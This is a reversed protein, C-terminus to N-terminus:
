EKRKLDRVVCIVGAAGVVGWVLYAVIRPNGVLLNGLFGLLGLVTMVVGIWRM